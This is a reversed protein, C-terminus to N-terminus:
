SRAFALGGYPPCVPAKAPAPNDDEAIRYVVNEASEIQEYGSILKLLSPRSAPVGKPQHEANSM